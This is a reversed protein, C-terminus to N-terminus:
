EGTGGMRQREEYTDWAPHLRRAQHKEVERERSGCVLQASDVRRGRKVRRIVREGGKRERGGKKGGQRM